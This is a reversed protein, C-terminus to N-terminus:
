VALFTGWGSLGPTRSILNIKFDLDARRCKGIDIFLVTPLLCFRKWMLEDLPKIAGIVDLLKDTQYNPHGSSRGTTTAKVKPGSPQSVKAKKPKKQSSNTSTM